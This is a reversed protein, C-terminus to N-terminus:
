YVGSSGGQDKGCDTATSDICKRLRDSAEKSGSALFFMEGGGVVLRYGLNTAKTMADSSPFVGGSFKGQSSAAKAMREWSEHFYDGPVPDDMSIGRSIAMDDGGFFLADVGKIAAIAEANDLGQDNEIQCILLPENEPKSYSRGVLDIPRRAGWSRSGVPPFKAAQVIHKAQEVTSVMPVMLADAFTDLALGILGGEHGPVRILAFRKVLNCARVCGLVDNYGMEGHQGDIWVWDWDPGIREIIGPAPYFMGLGLQPGSELKERFSTM